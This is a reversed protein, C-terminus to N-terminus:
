VSTDDEKDNSIFMSVESELLHHHQLLFDSESSEITIRLLSTNSNLIKIVHNYHKHSSIDDEKKLCM